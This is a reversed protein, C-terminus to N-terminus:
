KARKASNKIGFIQVKLAVVGPSSMWTVNQNSGTVDVTAPAELSAAVANESYASSGDADPRSTSQVEKDLVDIQLHNFSEGIIKNATGAGSVKEAVDFTM